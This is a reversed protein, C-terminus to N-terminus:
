AYSNVALVGLAGLSIAFLCLVRISIRIILISNVVGSFLSNSKNKANM